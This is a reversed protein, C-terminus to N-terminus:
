PQRQYSLLEAENSNFGDAYTSRIPRGVLDSIWHVETMRGGSGSAYNTFFGSYEVKYAMFKGAPVTVEEVSVVEATYTTQGKSGQTNVWDM